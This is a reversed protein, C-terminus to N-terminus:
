FGAAVVRFGLNDSTYGSRHDDSYQLAFHSARDDYSGGKVLYQKGWSQIQNDCWEWVNGHMDYLGWRNPKKEGVPHTTDSSNNAYWAAQALNLVGDGTNYETTAGAWCAYDWETAVPLRVKLPLAGVPLNEANCIAELKRCFKYVDNFSVNDVPHKPGKFNSPNNGMLSTWQEQTVEYKGLWFGQMPIIRRASRSGAKLVALNGDPIWVLELRIGQGLSISLPQGSQAAASKGAGTAAGNTKATAVSSLVDANVPLGLIQRANNVAAVRLLDEIRGEHDTTATAKVYGSEVSVLRSNITFLNGMKGVSGIVIHQAALIKGAEIAGSTDTAILAMQNEKLVKEAQDREIMRYKDSSGIESFIRESVLRAQGENVGSLAQFTMVACTPNDAAWASLAVALITPVLLWCLHQVITKNM